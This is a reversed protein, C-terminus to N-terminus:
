LDSLVNEIKSRLRKQTDPIQKFFFPHPKVGEKLIKRAILYAVQYDEAIQNIKNGTRRRTKVSYTGAIGKRHVWNALNNIMEKFTGTGKGQFESADIGEIPRYNGKTGFEMYASYEAGSVVEYTLEGVKNVSIEGGLFRTDAPADKIANRRFMNAAGEVEAGILSKLKKPAAKIKAQLEKSGILEVRAM